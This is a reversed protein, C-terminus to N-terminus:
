SSTEQGTIPAIIYDGNHCHSVRIREQVGDGPEPCGHVHPHGCYPCLVNVTKYRGKYRTHDVSIIRAVPIPEAM